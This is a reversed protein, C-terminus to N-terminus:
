RADVTCVRSIDESAEACRREAGPHRPDLKRATEADALSEPLRGLRQFIKSRLIHGDIDQGDIELAVNVESLAVASEGAAHLLAACEYRVFADYPALSAAARIATLREHPDSLAHELTDRFTQGESLRLHVVVLNAFPGIVTAQKPDARNASAIGLAFDSQNAHRALFAAFVALWAAFQTTGSQRASDRM